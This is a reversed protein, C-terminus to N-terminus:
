VIRLEPKEILVEGKHSDPILLSGWEKKIKLFEAYEQSNKQIHRRFSTMHSKTKTNML